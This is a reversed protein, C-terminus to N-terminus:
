ARNEIGKEVVKVNKEGLFKTLVAILEENVQITQNRGLRKIAKPNAVYIVVEDNGDPYCDFVVDTGHDNYNFGNLEKYLEEITGSWSDVKNKVNMISKLAKRYHFM